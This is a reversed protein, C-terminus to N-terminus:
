FFLDINSSILEEVEDPTAGIMDLFEAADQASGEDPHCLHGTIVAIGDFEDAMGDEEFSKIDELWEAPIGGQYKFYHEAEEFLKKRRQPDM